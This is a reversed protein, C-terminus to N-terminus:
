LSEEEEVAHCKEPQKMHSESSESGGRVHSVAQSFHSKKRVPKSMPSDESVTEVVPRGNGVPDPATKRNAAATPAPEVTVEACDSCARPRGAAAAAAPVGPM